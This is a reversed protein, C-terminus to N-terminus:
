TRAPSAEPPPQRRRRPMAAHHLRTLTHSPSFYVRKPNRYKLFILLQTQAPLDRKVGGVGDKIEACGKKIEVCGM